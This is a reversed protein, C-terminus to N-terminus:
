WGRLERIFKEAKEIAQSDTSQIRIKPIKCREFYQEYRENLMLIQKLDVHEDGRDNYRQTLAEETEYVLIMCGRDAFYTLEFEEYWRDTFDDHGRLISYVVQSPFYRDFFVLMEPSLQAMRILEVYQNKLKQTDIGNKPKLANKLIVGENMRKALRELFTTKGSLDVGEVIAYM